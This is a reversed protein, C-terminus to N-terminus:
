IEVDFENKKPFSDEKERRSFPFQRQHRFELGIGPSGLSIKILKLFSTKMLISVKKGLKWCKTTVYNGSVLELFYKFLLYDM